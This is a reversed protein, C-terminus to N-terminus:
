GSILWLTRAYFEEIENKRDRWDAMHSDLLAKFKDSHNFQLRHCCEHLVIYDILRPELASCRVSFSLVGASSCAAWARKTRTVRISKFSVGLLSSFHQVRRILVPVLQTSLERCLIRKVKSQDQGDGKVTVSAKGNELVAMDRKGNSVEIEYPQGFLLISSTDPPQVYVKRCWEERSQVFAEIDSARAGKPATVFFTGDEKKFHLIIHRLHPKYTVTYEIRM